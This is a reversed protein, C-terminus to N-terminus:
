INYKLRFFNEYMRDNRKWFLLYDLFELYVLFIVLLYFFM